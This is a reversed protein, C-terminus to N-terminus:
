ASEYPLPPVWVVATPQFLKCISSMLSPLAAGYLISRFPVGIPQAGADDNLSLPAFTIVM